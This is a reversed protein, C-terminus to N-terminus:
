RHRGERILEAAKWGIAGVRTRREDMRAAARMAESRVARNETEKELFDRITVVRGSEEHPYVDSPYKAGDEYVGLAPVGRGFQRGPYRKSGFIQRFRHKKSTAPAMIADLYSRILQEESLATTDVWEVRVGNLELQGLLNRVMELDFGRNAPSALLTDPRFYIRVHSM